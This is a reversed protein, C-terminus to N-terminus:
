FNIVSQAQDIKEEIEKWADLFDSIINSVEALKEDKNELYAKVKNSCYFYLENLNEALEKGKEM